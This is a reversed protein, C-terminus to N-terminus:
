TPEPCKFEKLLASADTLRGADESYFFLNGEWFEIRDRCDEAVLCGDWQNLLILSALGILVGVERSHEDSILLQDREHYPPASFYHGPAESIPRAEGLGLRAAVFLAHTSPYVDIWHDVWLLRACNAPLWRNLAEVFPLMLSADLALRTGIRQQRNAADSDLHLTTRRLALNSVVQFGLPGFRTRLEQTTLFQMSAHSEQNQGALEISGSRRLIVQGRRPGHLRHRDARRGRHVVTSKFDPPTWWINILWSRNRRKRGRERNAPPPPALNPRSRLSRPLFGQAMPTPALRVAHSEHSETATRWAPPTHEPIRSSPAESASPM